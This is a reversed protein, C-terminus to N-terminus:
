IFNLKGLDPNLWFFGTRTDGFKEFKIDQETGGTTICGSHFNYNNCTNTRTWIHGRIWV